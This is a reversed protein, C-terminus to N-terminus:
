PCNTSRIDHVAVKIDSISIDFIALKLKKEADVLVLASKEGFGWFGALGLPEFCFSRLADQKFEYWELRELSGPVFRTQKSATGVAV